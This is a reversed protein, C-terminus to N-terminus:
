KLIIDCLMGLNTLRGSALQLRFFITPFYQSLGESFHLSLQFVWSVSTLLHASVSGWEGGATRRCLVNVTHEATGTVPRSKPAGTSVTLGAQVLTVICHRIACSFSPRKEPRFLINLSQKNETQLM